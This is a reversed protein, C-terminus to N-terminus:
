RDWNRAIFLVMTLLFPLFSLLDRLLGNHLTHCLLLICQEQKTYYRPADRLMIYNHANTYTYTSTDPPLLIKCYVNRSRARPLANQFHWFRRILGPLRRFRSIRTSISFKSNPRSVLKQRARACRSGEAIWSYKYAWKIAKTSKREIKWDIAEFYERADTWRFLRPM